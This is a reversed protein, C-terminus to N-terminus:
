PDFEETDGATVQKANWESGSKHVLSGSVNASEFQAVGDNYTVGYSPDYYTTGIKVVKHYNFLSAPKSQNQGAVGTTYDVESGQLLNYSDGNVIQPTGWLLKYPFVPDGSTGAGSFTWTKVILGAGSSPQFLKIPSTYTLHNVALADVFMTAWATCDGNEGSLLGATTAATTDWPKYYYLKRTYGRQEEPTNPSNDWACVNTPSTGGFSSWTGSIISAESSGGNQCGLYLLTRYPTTLPEDWVIFVENETTGAPRWTTGQDVSVEWTVPFSRYRFVEDKLSSSCVHGAISITTVGGASSVSVQYEADELFALSDPGNGLVRVDDRDPQAAGAASVFTVDLKMTAGRKYCVPSHNDGSGYANGDPPSDADNWHPDDPYNGGGDDRAVAYVLDTDTASYKVSRVLFDVVSFQFTDGEDNQGCRARLVYDGLVQPTVTAAPGPQPVSLNSGQPESVISWTPPTAQPYSADEPLPTRNARLSISNGKLVVAPGEEKEMPPTPNTQVIRGVGVSTFVREIRAEGEWTHDGKTFKVEVKCTIKWYKPLVSATLTRSSQSTWSESSVDLSASCEGETWPGEASTTSFHKGTISWRWVPDALEEEQVVKQDPQADLGVETPTQSPVPNPTFAGGSPTVTIPYTAAHSVGTGLWLAVVVVCWRWRPIVSRM